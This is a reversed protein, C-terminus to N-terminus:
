KESLFEFLNNEQLFNYVSHVLMLESVVRYIKDEGQIYWTESSVDWLLKGQEECFSLAVQRLALVRDTEKSLSVIEPTVVPSSSGSAQFKDNAEKLKDNTTMSKDDLASDKDNTTMFRDNLSGNTDHGTMSKDNFVGNTEHGTMSKDNFISNTDHGTMSKDDIFFSLDDQGKSNDHGTMSKDHHELAEQVRDLSKEKEYSLMVGKKRKTLFIKEKVNQLLNGKKFSSLHQIWGRQSSFPQIGTTEKVWADIKACEGRDSSGQCWVYWLTEASIKSILCWNLITQHRSGEEVRLTEKDLGSSYMPSKMGDLNTLVKQPLIDLYWPLIELNGSFPKNYLTIWSKPPILEVILGIRTFSDGKRLNEYKNL